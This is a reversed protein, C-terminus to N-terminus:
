PATGRSRTGSALRGYASALKRGVAGRSLESEFHARARARRAARPRGALEVLAQALATSDGRPWLVGAGAHRDGLLAHSSPIDSAAVPLGCALAEMLAFSGGERHSALVFVDAAQMFQQIRARPVAGVLEVRGRLRPDAVIRERVADLLPATGFCCWLKVRPLAEAMRAIADLVTLPDKNSNLHAVWLVAPDGDLGTAARASAQDGTTFPVISGPIEFVPLERGLLGANVFPEAQARACFVVGDIATAQRKWWRRRWWRPPRDARDQLLIPTRPALERLGVVEHGFGLGQVHLVDPSLTDLLAAFRRSTALPSGLDDPAIFHFDAGDRSLRGERLSAQIVSVRLGAGSAAGALDAVTHWDDLLREPARRAVDVFFSIQAVHLPM